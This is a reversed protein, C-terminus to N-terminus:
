KVYSQLGTTDLGNYVHNLVRESAGHDLVVCVDEGNRQVKGWNNATGVDRFSFDVTSTHTRLYNALNALVRKAETNPPSKLEVAIEDHNEKIWELEETTNDRNKSFNARYVVDRKKPTMSLYKEYRLYNFYKDLNICTIEEFELDSGDLKETYEMELAFRNRSVWLVKAFCGYANKESANYAEAANQALGADNDAIKLVTGDNTLMAIRSSAGLREVVAGSKMLEAVKEKATMEYFSQKVINLPASELRHKLADLEASECVRRYARQISLFDGNARNSSPSKLNEHFPM